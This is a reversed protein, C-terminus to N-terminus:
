RRLLVRDEPHYVGDENFDRSSAYEFYQYLNGREVQSRGYIKLVERLIGNVDTQRNPDEGAVGAWLRQIEEESIGGANAKVLIRQAVDKKTNEEVPIRELQANAWLSELKDQYFDRMLYPRSFVLVLTPKDSVMATAKRIAAPLNDGTDM